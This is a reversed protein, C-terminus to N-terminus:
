HHRHRRVLVDILGRLLIQQPEAGEGSFPSAVVAHDVLTGSELGFGPPVEAFQQCLELPGSIALIAPSEPRKSTASSAASVMSAWPPTGAIMARSGLTPSGNIATCRAIDHSGLFLVGGKLRLEGHVM